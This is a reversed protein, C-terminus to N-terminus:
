TAIFNKQQVGLQHRWILTIFLAVSKIEESPLTAEDWPMGKQWVCCIWLMCFPEVLTKIIKQEGKHGM